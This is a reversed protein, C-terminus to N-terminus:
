IDLFLAYREASLRRLSATYDRMIDVLENGSMSKLTHLAEQIMRVDFPNEVETLITYPHDQLGDLFLPGTITPTESALSELDVMPHCDILTVNVTVDTTALSQLHRDHGLYRLKRYKDSVTPLVTIKAYYNVVDIDLSLACAALNTHLNKRIDPFAPVLAVTRRGSEFAPSLRNFDGMNPPQNLLMPSFARDFMDTTGAKLTHCRAFHGRAAHTRALSYLSSEHDWALQALNGHWVLYAQLGLAMVSNLVIESNASFGHFVVKKTEWEQFQGALGLLAFPQIKDRLPIAVKRGPLTGCASRIGHWNQHFVHAVDNFLSNNNAYKIDIDSDCEVKDTIARPPASDEGNEIPTSPETAALIGLIQKAADVQDRLLDEHRM